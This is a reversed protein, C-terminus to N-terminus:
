AETMFDDESWTIKKYKKFAKNSKKWDRPSDDKYNNHEIKQKARKRSQAKQTRRFGM